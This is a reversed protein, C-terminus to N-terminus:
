DSSSLSVASQKARLTNKMKLNLLFESLLFRDSSFIIDFMTKLNSQIYTTILLETQLVDVIEQRGIGLLPFGDM